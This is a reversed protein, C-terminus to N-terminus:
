RCCCTSWVPANTEPYTVTQGSILARIMEVSKELNALTSPKKGLTELSSDGAGIGLLLRDGVGERLTAWTAAIVGFSNALVKRLQPWIQM